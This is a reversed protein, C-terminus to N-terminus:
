LSWEGKHSYLFATAQAVEDLYENPNSQMGKLCANLTRALNHRYNEETSNNTAIRILRIAESVDGNNEEEDQWDIVAPHVYDRAIFQAIEDACNQMNFFILESAIGGLKIHAYRSADELSLKAVEISHNAGERMVAPMGRCIGYKTAVQPFAARWMFRHGAEHYATQQLTAQECQMIRNVFTEIATM